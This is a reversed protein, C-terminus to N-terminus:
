GEISDILARLHDHSVTLDRRGQEDLPLEIVRSIGDRTLVCPLSMAVDSYGYQGQMVTSVPVVCHENRLIAGIIRCAALSVGSSTYGKLDVIRPGITKTDRLLREKDIPEKLGFKEALRDFPVGVINVTNWPIFSTSGHEGLVFGVVNKADVGCLDGLMKNFRATDLLTGTGFIRGAPYDYKKQFYYTLIDLPNSIVILIAERTYATIEKMTQDMVEINKRLLTNRDHNGPLISPGATMVIIHADRLDRYDGVRISANASYAFATTHSADLVEGLAKDRNRNIVVIDDVINMRLVSNLVASGVKGAGIIALKGYSVAM